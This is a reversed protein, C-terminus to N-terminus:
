NHVSKNSLLTIFLVWIFCKINWHLYWDYTIKQTACFNIEHLSRYYVQKRQQRRLQRGFWYGPQYVETQIQHFNAYCGSFWPRFNNRFFFNLFEYFWNYENFQFSQLAVIWLTDTWFRSSKLKLLKNYRRSDNIQCNLYFWHLLKKWNNKNINSM